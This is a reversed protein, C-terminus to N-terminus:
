APAHVELESSSVVVVDMGGVLVTFEGEDVSLIQGTQGASEGTVLRVSDGVKPAQAQIAKDADGSALSQAEACQRRQEIKTALWGAARLDPLTRGNERRLQLTQGDAGHLWRTELESEVLAAEIDAEDSVELKKVRNCNLVLAADIWGEPHESMHKHFFTDVALNRDSFYFEIQRRLALLTEERTMSGKQRRRKKRGAEEGKTTLPRDHTEGNRVADSEADDADEGTIIEAQESGNGCGAEASLPAEEPKEEEEEFVSAKVDDYVTSVSM